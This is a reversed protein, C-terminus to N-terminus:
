KAALRFCRNVQPWAESHYSANDGKNLGAKGAIIKLKLGNRLTKYLEQVTLAREHNERINMAM